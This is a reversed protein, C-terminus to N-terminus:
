VGYNMFYYLLSLMTKGDKFYGSNLKDFTDKRSLEIIQIDEQEEINGGGPHKKDSSKCIGLFLHIQENMIGPSAYITNIKELQNIEYGAEEISERRACEEPADGDLVGAVIEDIWGSEGLSYLAYRFQRIFVFRDLDELYILV